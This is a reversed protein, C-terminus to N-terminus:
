ADKRKKAIAGELQEIRQVLANQRRFVRVVFLLVVAWVIVYAAVLLNGGNVSDNNAPAAQFATGRDGEASASPAPSQAPQTQAQM